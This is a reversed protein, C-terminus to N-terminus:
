VFCHFGVKNSTLKLGQHYDLKKQLQIATDLYDPPIWTPAFSSGKAHPLQQMPNKKSVQYDVLPSSVEEIHDGYEITGRVM